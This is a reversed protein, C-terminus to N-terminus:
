GKGQGLAQEEAGQKEGRVEYKRFPKDKSPSAEGRGLRGAAEWWALVELGSGERGWADWPECAM